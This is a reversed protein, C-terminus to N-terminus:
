MPWFVPLAPRNAPGPSTQRTTEGSQDCTVLKQTLKRLMVPYKPLPGYQPVVDPPGPIGMVEPAVALSRVNSEIKANPTAPVKLPTCAEPLVRNLWRQKRPTSQLAAM